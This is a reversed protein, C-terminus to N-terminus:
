QQQCIEASQPARDSWCWWEFVAETMILYTDKLFSKLERNSILFHWLDSVSDKLM